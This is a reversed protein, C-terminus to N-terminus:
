AAVEGPEDGTDGARDHNTFDVDCNGDPECGHCLVDAGDDAVVPDGDAGIVTCDDNCPEDDWHGHFGIEEDDTPAGCCNCSM